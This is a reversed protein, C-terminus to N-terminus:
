GQVVECVKVTVKFLIVGAILLVIGGNLITFDMNGIGFLLSLGGILMLGFGSLLFLKSINM